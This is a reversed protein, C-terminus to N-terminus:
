FTRMEQIYCIEELGKKCLINYHALLISKAMNKCNKIKSGFQGDHLPWLRQM